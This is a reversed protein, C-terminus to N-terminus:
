SVLVNYVYQKLPLSAYSIQVSITIVMRPAPAESHRSHGGCVLVVMITEKRSNLAQSM